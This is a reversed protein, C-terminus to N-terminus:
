CNRYARIKGKERKGVSPSSEVSLFREEGKKEKKERKKGQFSLPNLFNASGKRGKGREKRGLRLCKLFFTGPVEEKGRKREGRGTWGLFNKLSPLVTLGNKEKKKVKTGSIV